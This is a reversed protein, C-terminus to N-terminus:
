FNINFGLRFELPLQVTNDPMLFDWLLMVEGIGADYGLGLLAHTRIESAKDYYTTLYQEEVINVEGHIFLEPIIKFRTFAGAGFSYLNFKDVGLGTTARIHTYEFIIRPGVSFRPFIKYGVMPSFEIGFYSSYSGGSLGLGVNGGYWLHDVFDGNKQAHITPTACVMLLFLAPLLILRRM